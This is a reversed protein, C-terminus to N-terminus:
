MIGRKWRFSELAALAPTTGYIFWNLVLKTKWQQLAVHHQWISYTFNHQQKEYVSIIINLLLQMDSWLTINGIIVHLGHAANVLVVSFYVQSKLFTYKNTNFFLIYSDLTM